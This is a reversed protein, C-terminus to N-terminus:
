CFQFPINVSYMSLVYPIKLIICVYPQHVIYFVMFTHTLLIFHLINGDHHHQDQISDRQLAVRLLVCRHYGICCLSLTVLFTHRKIM